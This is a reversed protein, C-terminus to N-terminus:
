ENNFQKQYKLLLIIEFILFIIYFIFINLIFLPMNIQLTLVLVMVFGATFLLRLGMGTFITKIFGNLDKKMGLKISYVGSLFNLFTLTTGSFLTYFMEASISAFIFLVLEVSLVAITAAILLNLIKEIKM